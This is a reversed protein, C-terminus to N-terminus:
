VIVEVPKLVEKETELYRVVEKIVEIAEIEKQIV